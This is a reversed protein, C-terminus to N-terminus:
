GLWNIDKNSILYGLLFALGGEVPSEAGKQLEKSETASQPRLSSVSFRRIIM